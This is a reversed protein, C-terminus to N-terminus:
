HVHITRRDVVVVSRVLQDTAQVIIVLRYNAQVPVGKYIAGM